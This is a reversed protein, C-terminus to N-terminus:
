PPGERWDGLLRERPIDTIRYYAFSPASPRSEVRARVEAIKEEPVWDPVYWVLVRGMDEERFIPLMPECEFSEIVESYTM